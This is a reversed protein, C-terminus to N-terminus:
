FHCSSETLPPLPLLLLLLLMITNALVRLARRGVLCAADCCLLIRMMCNGPAASSGM